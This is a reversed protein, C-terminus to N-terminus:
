FNHVSISMLPESSLLYSYSHSLIFIVCLNVYQKLSVCLVPSRTAGEFCPAPARAGFVTRSNELMIYPRAVNM